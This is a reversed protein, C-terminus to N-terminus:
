PPTGAPSRPSGRGKDRAPSRRALDDDPRLLAADIADSLERSASGLRMLILVLIVIQILQLTLDVLRLDIMESLLATDQMPEMWDPNQM